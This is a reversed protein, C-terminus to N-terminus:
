PRLPKWSGSTLGMANLFYLLFILLLILGVINIVIAPAGFHVAALRIIWFVIALILLLILAQILLAIM